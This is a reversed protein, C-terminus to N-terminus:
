HVRGWYFEFGESNQSGKKKAEERDAFIDMSDLFNRDTDSLDQNTQVSKLLRAITEEIRAKHLSKQRQGEPQAAKETCANCRDVVMGYPPIEELEIASPIIKLSDQNQRYAIPHFAFDRGCIRCPRLKTCLMVQGEADKWHYITM